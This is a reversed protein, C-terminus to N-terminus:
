SGGLGGHAAIMTMKLGRLAAPLGPAFPTMQETLLEIRHHYRKRDQRSAVAPVEVLAPLAALAAETADLEGPPTSGTLIARAQDSLQRAFSAEVLQVHTTTLQGFRRHREANLIGAEQLARETGALTEKYGRRLWAKWSRARSDIQSLALELPTDSVSARAASRVVGDAETVEGAIALQSLVAARTLFATRTRDFLRGTRPDCALLYCRYHLGDPIRIM